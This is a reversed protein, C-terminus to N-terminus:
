SAAVRALLAQAAHEARAEVGAPRLDRIMRIATEVGRYYGPVQAVERFGQGRYFRRAVGNIARVELRIAALGAVRASAEMWGILCRGLGQRQAGQAVALLALSAHDAGFYMIAFGAVAGDLRAVIVTTDNRRMTRSVRAPTWSWGLGHEVLDRSLASIADIDTFRAPEIISYPM